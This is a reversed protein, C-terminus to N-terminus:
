AAPLDEVADGSYTEIYMKTKEAKLRSALAIYYIILCFVALVIMDIGFHLVHGNGGQITTFPITNPDPPASEFSGLFSIVALGILWPAIWLNNMLDLAPREGAPRTYLGLLLLVVGVLIALILKWVVGFGSFLILENAVIFGLPSMVVMLPLRFPRPRDPDSIRLAQVAPPLMAITIVGASSAFGVLEGWSPFPAFVLLGVLATFIIGVIPTGRGNLYGFIGPIYQNRALAFNYRSTIGIALLGTGGPSVIADIYLVFALWGLGFGTALAAYPGAVHAPLALNTWGHVLDSPRLAGLFAVELMMYIVFGILMSGIVAIPINRGPNKSEAGFAIASDWGSYAFIIGGSSVSALVGNMGFPLFGSPGHGVTGGTFYTPRFAVIIIAIIALTPIALKWWVAYKNVESMWRVGLINIIVFLLLVLFSVVYGLPTLAAQANVLGPIYGSAYTLMAETEIPATTVGSIFAFWGLAFGGLSGFAFHVFRVEGGAVHHMGGLEAVNLAMVVTALGGIAWALLSGPGALKSANYAGFLWGSGIVVGVSSFLVGVTGM